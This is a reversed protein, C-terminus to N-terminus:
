VSFSSGSPVSSSSYNRPASGTSLWADRYREAEQQDKLPYHGFIWGERMLHLAEPGSIHIVQLNGAHKAVYWHLPAEAPAPERVAGRLFSKGRGM